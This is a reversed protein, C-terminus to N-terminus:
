RSVPLRWYDGAATEVRELGARDAASQGQYILRALDERVMESEEFYSHGLISRNAATVDITEVGPFIVPGDSSDGARPFSRVARATAMAKDNATTYLSVQLGAAVLEPALDRLFIDRDIDPALLVFEGLRSLDVKRPILYQTTLEALARGGMSHGVLHIRRVSSRSMLDTLFRYFHPQSWLMNTEDVLYAAPNRASPWSWIVPVGTFGTSHVIEALQTSVQNFSRLYGHVFLLIEPKGARALARDLAPLFDEPALPDVATLLTKQGEGPNAVTARGYELEGRSLGYFRAPDAVDRRDRDTGYFVAVTAGDVVTTQQQACGSLLCAIAPVLCLWKM